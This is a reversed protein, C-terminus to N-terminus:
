DAGRIHQPGLILHIARCIYSFEARDLVLFSKFLKEFHACIVMHDSALAVWGHKKCCAHSIWIDIDPLRCFHRRDQLGHGVGITWVGAADRYARTVVGEQAAIFAVGEESTKM